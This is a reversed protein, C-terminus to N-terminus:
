SRAVRCPWSQGQHIGTWPMVKKLEVNDFNLRLHRGADHTALAGQSEIHKQLLEQLVATLNMSMRHSEKEKKSMEHQVCHSYLSKAKEITRTTTLSGSNDAMKRSAISALSSV